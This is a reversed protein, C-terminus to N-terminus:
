ASTKLSSGGRAHPPRYTKRPPLEGGVDRRYNEQARASARRDGIDVLSAKVPHPGSAARKPVEAAPPEPFQEFDETDKLDEADQEEALSAVVGVVALSMAGVALIKTKHKKLLNKAAKAFSTPAGDEPTPESSTSANM